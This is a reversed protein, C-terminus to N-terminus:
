GLPSPLWPCACLCVVVSEEFVSSHYVCAALALSPSCYVEPASMGAEVAWGVTGPTLRESLTLEEGQRLWARGMRASGALGLEAGEMRAESESVKVSGRGRPGRSLGVGDIVGM